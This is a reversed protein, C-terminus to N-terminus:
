VATGQLAHRRKARGPPQKGLRGPLRPDSSGAAGAGGSQLVVSCTPLPVFNPQRTGPPARASVTMAPFATPWPGQTDDHSVQVEHHQEPLHLCPIAHDIREFPNQAMAAMKLLLFARARSPRRSPHRGPVAKLEQLLQRPWPATQFVAPHRPLTRHPDGLQPLSRAQQLIRSRCKCTLLHGITYKSAM